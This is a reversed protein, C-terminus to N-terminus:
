LAQRVREAKVKRCVERAFIESEYIKRRTILWSRDHHLYRSIEKLWFRLRFFLPIQPFPQHRKRAEDWRGNLVKNLCSAAYDTQIRSDPGGCTFLIETLVVVSYSGGNFRTYLIGKETPREIGGPLDKMLDEHAM